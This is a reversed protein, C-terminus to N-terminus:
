REIWFTANGPCYCRGQSDAQQYFQMSRARGYVLCEVIFVARSGDLMDMGTGVIKAGDWAVGQAHITVTSGVQM